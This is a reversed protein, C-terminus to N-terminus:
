LFVIEVILNFTQPKHGVLTYKPQFHTMPEINQYINPQSTTTVSSPLELLPHHLTLPTITPNNQVIHDSLHKAIGVKPVSELKRLSSQEGM